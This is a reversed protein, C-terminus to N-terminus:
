IDSYPPLRPRITLSDVWLHFTALQTKPRFSQLHPPLSYYLHQEEDVKLVMVSTGKHCVSGGVAEGPAADYVPQGSSRPTHEQQTNTGKSPNFHTRFGLIPEGYKAM